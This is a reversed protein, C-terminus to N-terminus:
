NGSPKYRFAQCLRHTIIANNILQNISQNMWKIISQNFSQNISQNIPPWLYEIHHDCIKKRPPSHQVAIRLNIVSPGQAIKRQEQAIWSPKQAGAYGIFAFSSRHEMIIPETVGLKKLSDRAAHWHNVASDQTAILVAKRYYRLFTYKADNM